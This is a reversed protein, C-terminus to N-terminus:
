DHNTKRKPKSAQTFYTDLRDLTGTWFHRQHDLWSSAAEMAQPAIRCRHERGVIERKLLGARELVKVHKSIGPQSISFGESMEGITMPRRALREIMRRRTPDALAGFVDGLRKYNVM